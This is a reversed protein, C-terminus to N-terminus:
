NIPGSGLWYTARELFDDDNEAWAAVHMVAGVAGHNNIEDSM